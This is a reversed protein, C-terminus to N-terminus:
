WWEVNSQYFILNKSKELYSAEPRIVSTVSTSM